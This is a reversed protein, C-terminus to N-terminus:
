DSGKEELELFRKIESLLQKGKQYNRGTLAMVKKVIETDNLGDELAEAVDDIYQEADKSLEVSYGQNGTGTVKYGLLESGTVQDTVKSENENGEAEPMPEVNTVSESSESSIYGSREAILFKAIATNTSQALFLDSALSHKFEAQERKNLADIKPKLKTLESSLILTSASATLGYVISFCRFFKHPRNSDIDRTLFPTFFWLPVATCVAVINLAHYTTWLKQISKESTPNIVTVM